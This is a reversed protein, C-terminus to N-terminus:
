TVAEANAVLVGAEALVAGLETRSTIGLKPFMRYLHYAVTRHSLFLREGITKNSLGALVMRAIEQEQPTLQEFRGARAATARPLAGSARLEAEARDRWARAGIAELIERATRLHERSQAPQRHRRLWSGYELKLRAYYFPWHRFDETLVREFVLGAEDDDALMASAFAASVTMLPGAQQACSAALEAILERAQERHGSHAAADALDGLHYMRMQYQSAGDAPDHLRMLHQYAEQYDRRGLAALGRGIAAGTSGTVFTQEAESARREAEEDEGRMAAIVATLARNLAVWQQQGAEDATRQCEDAAAIAEPWQGTYLGCATDHHLARVLLGVRGQARLQPIAEALLVKSQRFAGLISAAVGLATLEALGLSPEAALVALRERVMAGHVDPTAYALIALLAPHLPSGALEQAAESILLRTERGSCGWWGRRAASMLLELAFSVQGDAATERALKVLYEIRGDGDARGIKINEQLVALRARDTVALGTRDVSRVFRDVMAPEGLEWSLQGARLLRSNRAVPDLSLEVARELATRAVGIAARQVARDAATDLEAAVNEDPGLAAAALHWARRDPEGTLVEALAQHAAVVTSLGARHEIASRALPHRFRLRAANADILRADIALAVADATAPADLLLTAASLTERLTGGENLAAVILVTRTPDPLESWRAAFAKEIRYTVATRGSAAWFAAPGQLASRSLEHLALPNGIATRLIARRAGAALGPAVADLLLGAAEESIADLRLEPLGAELLPLRYGDRATALVAIPADHIRRALFTLVHCSSPDLWHADDALVILPQRSAAATLLETVGVGVLFGEHGEESGRGLAAKGLASLLADRQPGPLEGIRNHLPRLLQDLGAFPLRSEAPVGTMALVAFGHQVAVERAVGVLASKGIGPDGILVRAGGRRAAGTVLARIVQEEHERGILRGEDHRVHKIIV